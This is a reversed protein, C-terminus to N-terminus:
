DLTAILTDVLHPPVTNGAVENCYKTVTSLRRKLAPTMGIMYWDEPAQNSTIYVKNYVAYRHGGKTNLRLKHGDLIRLLNHYKIGGGTFDDILIAKEGDYGDFPFNDEPNVTFVKPCEEMVKRTKGAGADGWLVEVDVKRFEESEKKELEGKYQEIFKSHRAYTSPVEEMIELRTKKEKVMDMATKLDNRKGQGGKTWDGIETFNGDKMCYDRAQDRTGRRTEFHGKKILQKMKNFRTANDFEIYGQLHETGKKGIEKGYVLYRCKIEHLAKVDDANYNNLTFVWSRSSESM